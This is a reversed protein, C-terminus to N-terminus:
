ADQAAASTAPDTIQLDGVISAAAERCLQAYEGLRERIRFAPGSVSIAGIVGGDRLEVPAAVCVVNEENEEEDLAFGREAGEAIAALLDDVSTISNATRAELPGSGILRRQEDPDLGSLIAKGLSTTHVPMRQGVASVLRISRPSDLKDVYVINRDELVGLHVTEGTADRLAELHPRATTRLDSQEAVGAALSRVKSTLQYERSTPDLRAYGEDILTNILRSTTAKDLGAAEALETLRLGGDCLALCELLRLGRVLTRAMEQGEMGHTESLSVHKM